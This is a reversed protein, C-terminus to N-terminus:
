EPLGTWNLPRLTLLFQKRNDTAAESVCSWHHTNRLLSLGQRFSGQKESSIKGKAWVSVM